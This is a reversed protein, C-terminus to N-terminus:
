NSTQLLRHRARAHKYTPSGGALNLVEPCSCVKFLAYYDLSAESERCIKNM